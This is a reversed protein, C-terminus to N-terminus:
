PRAVPTLRRGQGAAEVDPGVVIVPVKSHRIVASATSGLLAQGLGSRGHTSLAVFDPKEESVFEAIAEAANEGFAARVNVDIGALYRAALDRLADETGTRAAELAQGRSVAVMPAPAIHEGGLSPASALGSAPAPPRGPESIVEHSERPDVVSLLWTEAGWARIWPALAAIARESLPSGDSTVVIRM